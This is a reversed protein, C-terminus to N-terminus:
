RTISPYSTRFGIRLLLLILDLLWVFPPSITCLILGKGHGPLRIITLVPPEKGSSDIVVYGVAFTEGHLGISECDFVMWLDPLVFKGGTSESV